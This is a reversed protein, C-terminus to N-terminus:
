KGSNYFICTYTTLCLDIALLSHGIAKKRHAGAPRYTLLFFLLVTRYAGYPRSTLQDAITSYNILEHEENCILVSQNLDGSHIKRFIVNTSINVHHTWDFRRKPFALPWCGIALLRREWPQHQYCYGNAIRTMHKCRTGAKTTGLCQTTKDQGKEKNQPSAPLSAVPPSCIKCPGLGMKTAQELTIKESVNKVMRCNALHYKEGSPTKYVFQAHVGTSFILLYLISLLYRRM